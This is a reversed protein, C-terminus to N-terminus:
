IPMREQSELIEKAQRLEKRRRCWSKFVAPTGSDLAYMEYLNAQENLVKIQADIAECALKIARKYKM